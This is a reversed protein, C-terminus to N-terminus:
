DLTEPHIGTDEREDGRNRNQDIRRLVEQNREEIYTEAEKVANSDGTSALQILLNATNLAIRRGMAQIRAIESPTFPETIGRRKPRATNAPRQHTFSPYSRPM